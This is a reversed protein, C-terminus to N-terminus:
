SSIYNRWGSFRHPRLLLPLLPSGPFVGCRIWNYNICNDYSDSRFLPCLKAFPQSIFKAFNITGMGARGRVRLFLLSLPLGCAYSYAYGGGGARQEDEERRVSLM